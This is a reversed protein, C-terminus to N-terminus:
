KFIGTQGEETCGTVPTPESKGATHRVGEAMEGKPRSCTSAKGHTPTFLNRTCMNAKDFYKGLTRIKKQSVPSKRKQKIKAIEFPLYSLTTSPSIAKKDGYMTTVSVDDNDLNELRKADM